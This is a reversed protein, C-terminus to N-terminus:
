VSLKGQERLVLVEDQSLGTKKMIIEDNHGLEIFDVAFKIADKKKTRKIAEILAEQKEEEYLKEIRTM